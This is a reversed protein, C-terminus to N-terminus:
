CLPKAELIQTTLSTPHHDVPITIYRPILLNHPYGCWTEATKKKGESDSKIDEM